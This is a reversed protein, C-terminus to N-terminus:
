EFAPIGICEGYAYLDNLLTWTKNEFPFNSFYIFFLVTFHFPDKSNAAFLSFSYKTTINTSFGRKALSELASFESSSTESPSKNCTVM